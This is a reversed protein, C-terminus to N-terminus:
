FWQAFLLVTKLLMVNIIKLKEVHLSFRSMWFAEGNELYSYVSLSMPNMNLTKISWFM